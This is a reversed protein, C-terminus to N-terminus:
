SQRGVPDEGGHAVEDHRGDLLDLGTLQRAVVSSGRHRVRQQPTNSPRRSISAPVGRGGKIQVGDRATLM